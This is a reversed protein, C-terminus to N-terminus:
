LLFILKLSFGNSLFLSSSCCCSGGRSRGATLALCFVFPPCQSFVHFLVFMHFLVTHPWHTSISPELHKFCLTGLVSPTTPGGGPFASPTPAPLRQSSSSARQTQQCLFLGAPSLNPLGRVSLSCLFVPGDSGTGRLPVWCEQTLLGWPPSYCNITAPTWGRTNQM